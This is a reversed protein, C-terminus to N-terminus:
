AMPTIPRPRWVEDSSARKGPVLHPADPRVSSRVWEAPVVQVGDWNGENLYLRGLKAYDRLTANLGGAALEEGTDDTIWWADAEM